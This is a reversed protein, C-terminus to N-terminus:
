NLLYQYEPFYQDILDRYRYGQSTGNQLTQKYYARDEPGAHWLYGVLAIVEAKAEELPTFHIGESTFKIGDFGGTIAEMNEDTLEIGANGILQKVETLSKAKEVKEKLEEILKM